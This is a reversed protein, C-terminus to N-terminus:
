TYGQFGKRFRLKWEKLHRIFSSVIIKGGSLFSAEVDTENKIGAFGEKRDIESFEGRLERFEIFLYMRKILDSQRYEEIIHHIDRM